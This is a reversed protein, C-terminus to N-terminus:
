RLSTAIEGNSSEVLEWLKQDFLNAKESLISTVAREDLDVSTRGELFYIQTESVLQVGYRVLLSCYQAQEQIGNSPLNMEYTRCAIISEDGLGSPVYTVSYPGDVAYLLLYFAELNVLEEESFLYLQHKIEPEFHNRDLKGTLEILATEEVRIQADYQTDNIQFIRIYGSPREDIRIEQFSLLYELLESDQNEVNAPIEEWRFWTRPPNQWLYLGAVVGIVIVGLYRLRKM